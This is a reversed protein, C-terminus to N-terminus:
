LDTTLSQSSQVYRIAALRMLLLVKILVFQSTKNRNLPM